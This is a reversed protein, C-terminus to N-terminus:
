AEHSALQPDKARTLRKRKRYRPLWVYLGTVFLAVPVLSAVLVVWRTFTGGFTGYHLPTVWDLYAMGLYPGDRPTDFIVAGSYQDIALFERERSRGPGEREFYIQYAGLSDTPIRISTFEGGPITAYGVAMASDVPIPKAGETYVSHPDFIDTLTKVPKGSLLFALPVIVTSFTIAFGTLALIGVFPSSYLGLVQHWDYNQRKASAGRKVTLRAKLQKWQRPMWQRLGTIIMILLILSCLGVLYRGWPPLLLRRHLSLMVGIFASDRLRQGMLEGTYPNIFTQEKVGVVQVQYSLRPQDLEQVFVGRIEWEPRQAQAKQVLTGISLPEGQPEVEMLAPNLWRDIENRFTLVTGSLAVIAIVGGALLGLYLHWRLYWRKQHLGIQRLFFGLRRLM